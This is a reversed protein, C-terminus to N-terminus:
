LELHGGMVITRDVPLCFNTSPNAANHALGIFLRKRWTAMGGPDGRTITLRSVFFSATHPDFQLEESKGIARCLAEPLDQNDQFGFRIAVHVVGDDSHVLPDVELQEDPPVYPVNETIISVLVVHEHLM